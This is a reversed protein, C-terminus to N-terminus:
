LHEFVHVRLTSFANYREEVFTGYVLEGRCGPTSGFNKCAICLPLPYLCAGSLYLIMAIVGGKVL